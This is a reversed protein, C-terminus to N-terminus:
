SDYVGISIRPKEGLVRLASILPPMPEISCNDLHVSLLNDFKLPNPLFASVSTAEARSKASRDKMDKPLDTSKFFYFGMAALSVCMFAEIM